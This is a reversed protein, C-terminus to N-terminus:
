QQEPFIGVILGREKLKIINRNEFKAVASAYNRDIPCTLIQSNKLLGTYKNLKIISHQTKLINSLIQFKQHNM